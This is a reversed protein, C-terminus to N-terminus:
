DLAAGSIKIVKSWKAMHKFMEATLHTASGTGGSAFQLEGPKSKALAILEKVYRVPLAPNVLLVIAVTSTLTIPAFSKIPDFPLKRYLGANIANPGVNGMLITYGDPKARSVLELAIGAWSTEARGSASL